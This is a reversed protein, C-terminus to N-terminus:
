LFTVRTERGLMQPMISLDDPEIEVEVLRANSEGFDAESRKGRKVTLPVRAIKGKYVNRNGQFTIEVRGGPQLRSIHLEDVEAVIRLQGMDVVKAIGGAAIREGQRSYIQVVIGELPTRVLAQERTNRESDLKAELISIETDTQAVDTALTEKMVRLKAQERELNNQSVNLELQKMDPPKGSRSVEMAKLKNEEAVSKVALEQQDIESKRFGSAMSERQLKTKALEAEAQRVAIDASPFNSLVAIIDDRKVKQGDVIRLELLVGGGAPDGAIVATGAPAETYGRSILPGIAQIGNKVNGAQHGPANGLVFAAAAVVAAGSALWMLTKARAM